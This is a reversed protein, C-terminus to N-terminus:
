SGLKLVMGVARWAGCACLARTSSLCVVFLSAHAFARGPCADHARHHRRRPISAALYATAALSSATAGGEPRSTRALELARTHDRKETESISVRPAASVNTPASARQEAGFAFVFFM